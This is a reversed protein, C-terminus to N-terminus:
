VLPTLSVCGGEPRPEIMLAHCETFPKIGYLVVTGGIREAKLHVTALDSLRETSRSTPSTLGVFTGGNRKIAALHDVLGEMVDGGYISELSDLGMISLFPSAAGELSYALSKWKLDDAVRSGEVGLVYRGSGMDMQSAPEVVRVVRDMLDDPVTGDLMARANAGSEKRMPVWLVGRGSVAFNTVMSRELMGSVAPPLGAGMEILVVNGPALGGTMADLDSLGYSFRGAPDEARKWAHDEGCGRDWHAGFCRFRGGRLTFLYLPQQIECGRLKLINMERVLRRDREVRVCEVVGDGLYDLMHDNSELVFLLNAGMGEVLDRQLALILDRTELEYRDVLADISDVVILVREGGKEVLEYLRELEPMTRGISVTMESRASLMDGSGMGKLRGLGSRRRVSTEERQLLREQLWPFQRLLAADSVRTSMYHSRQAEKFEEAVQLM